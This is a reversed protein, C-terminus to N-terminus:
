NLKDLLLQRSTKPDARGSTLKMVQGVLFGIAAEKGAKYDEVAQPNNAITKEVAKKIEDENMDFQNQTSKIKKALQEPTINKPLPNNVIFNATGKADIGKNVTNRFLNITSEDRAIIKAWKWRVGTDIIRREEEWPLSKINKKLMQINSNSIKFPPIDPEPFYRYDKAVEKGRQVYTVGQDADYGRTEQRPQKGKELLKTQRDIEYEIAKEVFRFSNLNKVEVRYEPLEYSTVRLGKVKRVSINAEL